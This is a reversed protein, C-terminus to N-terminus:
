RVLTMVNIPIHDLSIGYDELQHKMWLVQACCSGAAIYEAETTSLAVSNQTKCFWSMIMNGLLQCSGSTSKRDIRSGAYDADTYAILDFCTDKPQWLGLNSTHKLYRFIQKVAIVHSEQPNSQFRACLCVSFMIDSRSTTLYLLDGIM